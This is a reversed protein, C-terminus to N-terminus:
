FLLLLTSIIPVNQFNLAWITIASCLKTNPIKEPRPRDIKIFKSYTVPQNIRNSDNFHVNRSIKFLILRVLDGGSELSHDRGFHDLIPGKQLPKKKGTVEVKSITRM